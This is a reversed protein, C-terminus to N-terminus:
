RAELKNVIEELLKLFEWKDDSRKLQWFLGEFNDIYNDNKSYLQLVHQIYDKFERKQKESLYYKKNAYNFMKQVDAKYPTEKAIKRNYCIGSIKDFVMNVSDLVPNDNEDFKLYNKLAIDVAVCVEEFGFERIWDQCDIRGKISFGHGTVNLKNEILDIQTEIDNEKEQKAGCFHCFLANDPLEASCKVCNM